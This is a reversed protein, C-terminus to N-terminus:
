HSQYRAKSEVHGPTAASDSEAFFTTFDGLASAPESRGPRALVVLPAFRSRNLIVRVVADFDGERFGDQGQIPGAHRAIDRAPSSNLEGVDVLGV